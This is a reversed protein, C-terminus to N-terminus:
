SYYNYSEIDSYNTREKIIEMMKILILQLALLSCEKNQSNYYQLCKAFTPEKTLEKNSLEVKINPLMLSPM